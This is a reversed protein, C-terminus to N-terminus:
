CSVYQCSLGLSQTKFLHSEQKMFLSVFIRIKEIQYFVVLKNEKLIMQPTPLLIVAWMSAVSKSRPNPKSSM